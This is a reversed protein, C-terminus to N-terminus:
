PGQGWGGGGGCRYDVCRSILVPKEFSLAQLPVSSCVSILGLM